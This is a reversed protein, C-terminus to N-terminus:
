QTLRGCGEQEAAAEKLLQDHVRRAEEIPLPAVKRRFALMEKQLGELEDAEEPTLTGDIEKDVLDCRRENKEETWSPLQASREANDRLKFTVFSGRSSGVDERTAQLEDFSSLLVRFGDAWQLMPVPGLLQPALPSCARANSPNAPGVRDPRLVSLHDCNGVGGFHDGTTERM